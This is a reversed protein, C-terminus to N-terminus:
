EWSPATLKYRVTPKGGKPTTGSMGHDVCVQGKHELRELGVGFASQSVAIGTGTGQYWTYIERANASKDLTELARIVQSEIYELRKNGSLNGKETAEDELKTLTKQGQVRSATVTLKGNPDSEYTIYAATKNIEGAGCPNDKRLVLESLGTQGKAPTKRSKIEYLAGQTADFKRKSGSQRETNEHGIHDVYVAAAGHRTFPALYTSFASDTGGPDNPNLGLSGIAPTLADLTVLTTRSLVEPTIHKEYDAVSRLVTFSNRIADLEAGNQVLRLVIRKTSNNDFEWHIVANGSNLERAQVSALYISKGAGGGGYIGNILGAYFLGHEDDAVFGVEPFEDADGALIADLADGVSQDELGKAQEAAFLAKAETEARMFALKEAVMQDHRAQASSVPTDVAAESSTPKLSLGCWCSTEPDGSKKAVSGEILRRWEANHLDEDSDRTASVSIFVGYLEQLATVAGSHGEHALHILSDTGKLAAHHVDLGYSHRNLIYDKAKVLQAAMELCPEGEAEARSVLWDSVETWAMDKRAPRALRRVGGTIKKVAADPLVFVIDEPSPICDSPTSVVGPKFWEYQRGTDPHISPFVVAHRHGYRIIEIDADLKSPWELGKPVRVLRQGRSRPNERSSSIWCQADVENCDVGLSDWFEFWQTYGEKDKEKDTDVDFLIFESDAVLALTINYEPKQRAWQNYQEATAIATSYGTFGVPLDQSKGKVPLINFDDTWGAQIYLSQAEPYLM